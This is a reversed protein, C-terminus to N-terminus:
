KGLQSMHMWSYRDDFWIYVLEIFVTLTNFM